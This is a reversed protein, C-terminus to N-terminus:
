YFKCRNTLFIVLQRGIFWNIARAANSFPQALARKYQRLYTQTIDLDRRFAAADDTAKSVPQHM